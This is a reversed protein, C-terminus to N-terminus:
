YFNCAPPQVPSTWPPWESALRWRMGSIKFAGGPNSNTIEGLSVWGSMGPKFEQIFQFVATAPTVTAQSFEFEFYSCSFPYSPPRSYPYGWGDFHGVIPMKFVEQIQSLGSPPTVGAAGLDTAPGADQVNMEFVEGVQVVSTQTGTRVFLAPEKAYAYFIDGIVIAQANDLYMRAVYNHWRTGTDRVVFPILLILETYPQVGLDVPQGGQLLRLEGQVGLMLIVPHTSVTPDVKQALSLGAPLIANVLGSDLMTVAIAGEYTSQAGDTVQTASSTYGGVFNSTDLGNPDL